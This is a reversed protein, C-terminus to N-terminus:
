KCVATANTASDDDIGTTSRDRWNDGLDPTRFLLGLESMTKATAAIAKNNLHNM